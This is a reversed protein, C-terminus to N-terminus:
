KFTHAGSVSYKRLYKPKFIRLPLTMPQAAITKSSQVIADM